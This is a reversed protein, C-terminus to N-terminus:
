QPLGLRKLARRSLEIPNSEGERALGIIKGALIEHVLEPQGCDNMAKKALDFAACMSAVTQPDFSGNALYRRM